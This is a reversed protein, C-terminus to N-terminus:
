SMLTTLLVCILGGATLLNAITLRRLRGYQGGFEEEVKAIEIWYQEWQTHVTDILEDLDDRLDLMRMEVDGNGNDFDHKPEPPMDYTIENMGM